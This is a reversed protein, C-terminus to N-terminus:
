TDQSLFNEQDVTANVEKKTAAKYEEVAPGLVNQVIGVDQQRCRVLM